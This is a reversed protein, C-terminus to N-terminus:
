PPRQCIWDSNMSEPVAYLVTGVSASKLVATPIWALARSTSVSANGNLLALLSLVPQRVSVNTSLGEYSFM